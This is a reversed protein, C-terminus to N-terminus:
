SPPLTTGFPVGHRECEESIALHMAREIAHDRAVVEVFDGDVAPLVLALVEDPLGLASLTSNRAALVDVVHRRTLTPLRGERLVFGVQHQQSWSVSGTFLTRAREPARTAM